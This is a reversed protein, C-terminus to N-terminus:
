PYAHFIQATATFEGCFDATLQRLESKAANIPTNKPLCLTRLRGVKTPEKFAM